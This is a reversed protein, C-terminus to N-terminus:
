EYRLAVMPDVKTARRAPLYCALFAVVVSLGSVAVFTAPDTASVDFLLSEMVGSLALAGGLGLITGAIILASAQRLILLLIERASAGVAIRLGIERTRQIAYNAVVGYIGVSALLAAMGAFLSLLFATFRTRAMSQNVITTMPQMAFVAAKHDLQHIEHRVAATIQLPNAATRVLISVSPYGSTWSIPVYCEAPAAVNLGLRSVDSVVGIVRANLTGGYYRFTKGVPSEGGWFKRAMARNIMVPRSTEAQDGERFPRGEELRQGLTKHYNNSVWQFEAVDAIDSGPMRPDGAIEVGINSTNERIPLASTFAVSSVEPLSEVRDALTRFFARVHHGEPYDFKSLAVRM